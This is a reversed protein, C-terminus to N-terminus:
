LFRRLLNKLKRPLFYSIKEKIYNNNKIIGAKFDIDIKKIEELSDLLANEYEEYIAKPEPQHSTYMKSVRFFKNNELIQFQHFHYFILKVNNITILKDKQIIKYKSYNWPAIGAGLNKIIHCSNYKKPWDDLYKQDGM